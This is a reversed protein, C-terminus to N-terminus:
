SWYPNKVYKFANLGALGGEGVAQPIRIWKGVVDGAAFVGEINTRLDSDVVVNNKDDLKIGLGQLFETNAVTGLSFLITEVEWVTESDDKNNYLSVKEVKGDGVVKKVETNYLVNVCEDGICAINKETARFKDRRHVITVDAGCRKLEVACEVATDGGGVVLVKSGKHASPDPLCYCVNGLDEGEVNLKRPSGLGVALVVANATYEGKNTTVKLGEKLKKVGTVTETEKMEVGEGKAHEAMLEACELGNKGYIGLYNDVKKWPYQSILAGGAAGSDIVLTKLKYYATTIAASLGAPGAGVVIVEYDM